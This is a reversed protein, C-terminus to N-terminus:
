SPFDFHDVAPTVRLDTSLFERSLATAKMVQWIKFDPDQTIDGVGRNKRHKIKAMLYHVYMDYEPEDLQDADSDFGVLTRYYDAYINMNVYATDIARNFYVYASGGPDAFVTFRDPLGLSVNEYVDSGASVHYGGTPHSYIRFTNLYSDGTLGEIRTLGFNIGEVSVVASNGFDRGNAIWLSTSTAYTYPHTLTSHPKDRWDFDWEKKDYYRMNANAGIRVGYVNEATWPREVDTPLEVRFSGTLASSGLITNFKRRFPRKGPANHYERRAEWLSQNLFEHTIITGDVEEGLSDLARKKIAFVTNDDYGTAYVPDSWASNRDTVTENFRVFYFANTPGGTLRDSSTTTDRFITENKDPTIAVPYAALTTKTGSASAAYDFEVRNWDVIYVRTDQPHDFSLTDRLYVTKSAQSPFEGSTVSTRVLETREGGIEGICLVRGSSTSLSEMGVVSQVVLTSGTAVVDETLFTFQRDRVLDTNDVFLVKLSSGLNQVRLDPLQAAM